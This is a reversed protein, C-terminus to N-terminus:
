FHLTTPETKLCYSYNLLYLLANLALNKFILPLLKSSTHLLNINIM